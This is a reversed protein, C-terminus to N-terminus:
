TVKTSAVYYKVDEIVIFSETESPINEAPDLVHTCYVQVGVSLCTNLRTHVNSM